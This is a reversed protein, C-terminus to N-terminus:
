LAIKENSGPPRFGVQDTPSHTKSYGIFVSHLYTKLITGPTRPHRPDPITDPFQFRAVPDPHMIDAGPVPGPDIRAVPAPLPDFCGRFRSRSVLRRRSRISVVFFCYM